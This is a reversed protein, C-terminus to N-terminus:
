SLKRSEITSSYIVTGEAFFSFASNCSFGHNTIEDPGEDEDQDDNRKIIKYEYKHIVPKLATKIKTYKQANSIEHLMYTKKIV